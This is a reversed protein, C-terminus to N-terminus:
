AGVGAAAAGRAALRDWGPRRAAIWRRGVLPPVAWVVGLALGVALGRGLGAEALATALPGGVHGGTAMVLGIYSWAMWMYHAGLWGEARRWAAWWGASVTVLSVCAAVHFPGLGRFFPTSDRLAFSALCLAVMAAAYVRGAWRHPRGGKPRFLVLAGTVLAATGLATHVAATATM